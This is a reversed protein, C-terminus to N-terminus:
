FSGIQYLSGWFLLLLSIILPQWSSTMLNRFITFYVVESDLNVGKNVEM